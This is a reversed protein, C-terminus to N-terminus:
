HKQAWKELEKKGKDTNEYHIGVCRAQVWWSCEISCNIWVSDTSVDEETEWETCCISCMNESVWVKATKKSKKPTAHSSNFSTDSVEFEPIPQHHSNTSSDQFRESVYQKTAGRSWTPLIELRM